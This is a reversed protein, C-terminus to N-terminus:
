YDLVCYNFLGHNLLNIADLRKIILICLLDILHIIYIYIYIYINSYYLIRIQKDWFPVKKLKLGGIFYSIIMSFINIKIFFDFLHIKSSLQYKIVGIILIVFERNIYIRTQKSVDFLLM